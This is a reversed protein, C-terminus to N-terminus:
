GLTEDFTPRKRNGSLVGEIISKINKNVVDKPQLKMARNITELAEDDKEAILLNMAHNGMAAPDDPLRKLTEESYQLGKDMDGLHMAELSAEMTIFHNQLEIRMAQELTMLANEHDELRQYAKAMMFMSQWNNPDFELCKKFDAVSEKLKAEVKRDLSKRRHGDLIILKNIRSCASEYLSNFHEIEEQTPGLGEEEVKDYITGELIHEVEEPFLEKPYPSYPNLVLPTGKTLELLDQGKLSVIPVEEKIVGKDYIRNVSSFIPIHGSDLTPFGVSITEELEGGGEKVESKGDTVVFLDWWLLKTYFEKRASMDNGTETLVRELENEPFTSKKKKFRDFIGM